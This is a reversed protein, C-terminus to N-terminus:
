NGAPDVAETANPAEPATDYGPIVEAESKQINEAEWKRTFFGTLDPFSVDYGAIIRDGTQHDFIKKSSIDPECQSIYYNIHETPIGISQAKTRVLLEAREVAKKQLIKEVAKETTDKEPLMSIDEEFFVRVRNQDISEYRESYTSCGSIILPIILFNLFPLLIFSLSLKISKFM